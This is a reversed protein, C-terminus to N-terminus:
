FVTKRSAWQELPPVSAPSVQKRTQTSHGPVICDDSDSLILENVESSDMQQDDLSFDFAGCDSVVCCPITESNVLDM